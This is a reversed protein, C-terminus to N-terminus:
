AMSYRRNQTMLRTVTSPHVNWLRAAEAMTYREGQVGKILEARQKPNLDRLTRSGRKSVSLELLPGASQRSRKKVDSRM